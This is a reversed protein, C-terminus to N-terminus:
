FESIKNKIDKKILMKYIMYNDNELSNKVKINEWLLDVIDLFGEDYAFLIASNGNESINVRKDKIFLKIIDIHGLQAAIGLCFCQTTSIKIAKDKLLLKVIAVDNEKVAKKLQDQKDM